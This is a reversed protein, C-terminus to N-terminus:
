VRVNDVLAVNLACVFLCIRTLIFVNQKEPCNQWTKFHVKILEDIVSGKLLNYANLDNQFNSVAHNYM